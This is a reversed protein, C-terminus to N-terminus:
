PIAPFPPSATIEMSGAIYKETGLEGNEDVTMIAFTHIGEELEMDSANVSEMSFEWPDVSSTIVMTPELTVVGDKEFVMRVSELETTVGEIEFLRAKLTTGKVQNPFNFIGQTM